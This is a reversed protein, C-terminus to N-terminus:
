HTKKFSKLVYGLVGKGKLDLVSFHKRFFHDLLYFLIVLFGWFSQKDLFIWNLDLISNLIFLVFMCYAVSQTVNFVFMFIERKSLINTSKM